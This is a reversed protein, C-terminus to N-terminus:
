TQFAEQNEITKHVSLISSSISSVKFPTLLIKLASYTRVTIM